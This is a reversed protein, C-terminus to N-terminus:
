IWFKNLNLNHEFKFNTWIEFKQEYKFKTWIWFKNLNLFILNLNQFQEYNFFCFPFLFSFVYHAPGASRERAPPADMAGALSRSTPAGWKKRTAFFIERYGSGSGETWTWNKNCAIQDFSSCYGRRFIVALCPFRGWLSSRLAMLGHLYMNIFSL